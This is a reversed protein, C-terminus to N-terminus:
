HTAARGEADHFASFRVGMGVFSRPANEPGYNLFYHNRVRGIAMMVTEEEAGFYVSVESGLPLPDRTELCIGGESINRAVCRVEGHAPSDVKVPALIEFRLFRRREPSM